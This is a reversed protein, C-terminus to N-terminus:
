PGIRPAIRMVGSIRAGVPRHSGLTTSVPSTALFELYRENPSSLRSRRGEQLLRHRALFLGVDAGAESDGVQDFAPSWTHITADM